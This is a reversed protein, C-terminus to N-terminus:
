RAGQPNPLVGRAALSPVPVGRTPFQELADVVDAYPIKHTAALDLVFRVAAELEASFRHLGVDGVLGVRFLSAQLATALTAVTRTAGVRVGGNEGTVMLVLANSLARQQADITGALISEANIEALQQPQAAESRLHDDALRQATRVSVGERAAISKWDAGAARAEAIRRNREAREAATQPRLANTEPTHTM